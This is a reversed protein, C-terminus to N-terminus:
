APTALRARASQVDELFEFRRMWDVVLLGTGSLRYASTPPQTRADHVPIIVDEAELLALADTLNNKSRGSLLPELESYRRPGGVLAYLINKCLPNPRGLFHHALSREIGPPPLGDPNLRNLTM